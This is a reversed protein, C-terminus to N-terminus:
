SLLIYAFTFLYAFGIIFSALFAFSPDDFYPDKIIRIQLLEPKPPPPPIKDDIM